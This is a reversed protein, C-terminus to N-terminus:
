LHAPPEQASVLWTCPPTQVPWPWRLRGCPGFARGYQWPLLLFKQLRDKCDSHETVLAKDCEDERVYVCRKIKWATKPRKWVHVACKSCFWFPIQEVIIRRWMSCLALSPNSSTNNTQLHPSHRFLFCQLCCVLSILSFVFLNIHSGAAFSMQTRVHEETPYFTRSINLITSSSHFRARM